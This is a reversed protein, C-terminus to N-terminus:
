CEQEEMLMVDAVFGSLSVPEGDMTRSANSAFYSVPMGDQIARSREICSETLLAQGASGIKPGAAFVECIGGDDDYGISVHVKNNEFEQTHTICRRRNPIALEKEM